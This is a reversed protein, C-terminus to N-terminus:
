RPWFLVPPGVIMAAMAMVWSPLMEAARQVAPVNALVGVCLTTYALVGILTGKLKM